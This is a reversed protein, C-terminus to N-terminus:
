VTLLSIYRMLVCLVWESTGHLCHSHAHYVSQQRKLETVQDTETSVFVVSTEPGTNISNVSHSKLPKLCEIRVFKTMMMMMVTMTNM